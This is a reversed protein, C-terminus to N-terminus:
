RSPAQAGTSGARAGAELPGVQAAWQLSEFYGRVYDASFSVQLENAGDRLTWRVGSDTCSELLGPPLAFDFRERSAAIGGLGASTRDIFLLPDGDTASRAAFGEVVLFAYWISEVETPTSPESAGTGAVSSRGELRLLYTSSNASQAVDSGRIWHADRARQYSWGSELNPARDADMTSRCAPAALAIACTM